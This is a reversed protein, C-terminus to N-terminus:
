PFGLESITDENEIEQKTEEDGTSEKVATLDLAGTTFLVSCHFHQLKTQNYNWRQQKIVQKTVKALIKM